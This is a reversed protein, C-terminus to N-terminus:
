SETSKVPAKKYLVNHNFITPTCREIRYPVLQSRSGSAAGGGCGRSLRSGAVGIRLTRRTAKPALALRSLRRACRNGCVDEGLGKDSLCEPTKTGNAKPVVVLRQPGLCRGRPRPAKKSMNEHGRARLVPERDPPFLFAGGGCGRSLRPGAVGIRLTKSVAKSADPVILSFFLYLSSIQAAPGPFDSGFNGCGFGCVVLDCMLLM